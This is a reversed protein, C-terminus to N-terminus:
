TLSPLRSSYLGLYPVVPSRTAKKIENRYKIFNQSPLMMDELKKLNTIHKSPVNKWSSKLRQVPLSELGSIVEMVGSFNAMDKLLM